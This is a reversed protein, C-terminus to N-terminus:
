ISYFRKILKSIYFYDDVGCLERISHMALMPLGLDISNINVHSSSIPGITSGGRTDSRNVFYQYPIQSEELLQKIAGISYADSTYSQNASVKIAPGGNVVPKIEPDSKGGQAPHVAHAGDASIIFSNALARFFEDRTKGLSLCIRELSTSLLPSAAGQKTLSGVEENDFCALVNICSGGEEIIGLLGAHCSALNDIRASSILEENAGVLTGKDYEYLFLDFDLIDDVSIGAEQAVLNILFAEKEFNKEIVSLVPLTDNQANLEVGKNVERNQHIALNPIILLPREINILLTDPKLPRESRVALRGAVSLPRDMWTNLIPGGYVETNLRLYSAESLIEPKPKIRFGPTDCHTGVINFGNNAVDTSGVYFAILASDNKRLFYRGGNELEWKESELLEMFDNNLLSESMNNVAHFATPSKYTFELLDNALSKKEM